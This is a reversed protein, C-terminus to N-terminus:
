LFDECWPNESKKPRDQVLASAESYMSYDFTNLGISCSLIVCAMPAFVTCPQTNALAIGASSHMSNM